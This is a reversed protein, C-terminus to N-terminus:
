AAAEFPQRVVEAAAGSALADRIADNVRVADLAAEVPVLYPTGAATAALFHDLEARLNGEIRGDFGPWYRTDAFTAGQPTTALVAGDTEAVEVMGATGVLRLGAQLGAPANAPLTWGFALQALAGGQLELLAMVVDDVGVQMGPICDARARAAVVRTIRRGTIWQILDVDHVGMLWCLHSGVARGGPHGCFRSATIHLPNGIGAATAAAQRYRADFRCLHGVMLRGGQAAAAIAMAGATDHAMPKELLVAKGARLAAVTAEVHLTDPLAIVVADVSRDALVAAMDSHPTAGIEQALAAAAAARVDVVHTLTALASQALARAHLGGMFGAGIVAIRVPLTM